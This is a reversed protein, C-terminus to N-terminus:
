FRLGPIVQSELRARREKSFAILKRDELDLDAAVALATGWPRGSTPDLIWHVFRQTRDDVAALGSRVVLRAGVEPWGLYAIRYELVAGGIRQGETGVPVDGNLRSRLAPIGDSIRGVLVEPRMRGFVDCDQIGVSGVSIPLLGFANADAMSGCGASESLSLSRPQAAPPAEMRLSELGQRSRSSWPFPRREEVTVHAVVTQFSAALEGTMSHALLQLIRAETDSVEIVSATMHLAAPPRAERMFRIHQDKVLLTSAARRGFAKELGIEAAFGVLGEMARAIYFRVNMHGMHDCEWANVGGRWVEVGPTTGASKVLPDAGHASRGHSM